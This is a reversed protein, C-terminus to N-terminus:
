LSDDFKEILPFTKICMAGGQIQNSGGGREGEKKENQKHNTKKL